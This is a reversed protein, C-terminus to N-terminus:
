RAGKGRREWDVVVGAAGAGVVARAPAAMNAFAFLNIYTVRDDSDPPPASRFSSSEPYRSPGRIPGLRGGTPVPLM